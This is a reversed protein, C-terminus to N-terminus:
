LFERWRVHPEAAQPEPEAAQQPEEDEDDAPDPTNAKLRKRFPDRRVMEATSVTMYDLNSTLTKLMWLTPEAERRFEEDDDSLVGAADEVEDYLDLLDITADIADYLALMVRERLADLSPAPRSKGPAM